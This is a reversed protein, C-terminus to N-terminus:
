KRRRGKTAGAPALNEAAEPTAIKTPVVPESPPAPNEAPTPVAKIKVRSVRRREMEMVTFRYGDSEFSEGGRPIFGLRSLVFGGVTEYSSDDALTINYQAALDRVKIGADFILGGDPLQLPREVVDFEDHIEGVMQELIDELTVLGLISGFEDVVMALGTRRTRFELLLESAPKTEPVILVDRLVSRLQFDQGSSQEGTRHARDILIWIVDKIHVFGLIHDLSGDYVPLRSRQTTAFMRMTDELTASAPLAHMDPRPVMLEHVQVQSLGMANQIFRAESAPLLGRDRAQQIMVQLEEASRVLTHSHPAVVGLAGVLREAIGDLLDIAWSFTHLFWHFPRAILLAVREARALSLSKPVLEGFIVQLVTLLGFVVVLAVGHAVVAAWPRAVQEVFPRVIAALTIEGLYGLSLSAITIGVQVGSVVRSLDSVLLEVIKARPDGKEVLQRVRSLRVAVLSFEAAAFFANMSILFVIGFVHLASM